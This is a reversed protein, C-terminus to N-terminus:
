KVNILMKTCVSPALWQWRRIEKCTPYKLQKFVNRKKWCVRSHFLFCLVNARLLMNWFNGSLGSSWRLLLLYHYCLHADKSLPALLKVSCLLQSSQHLRLSLLQPLGAWEQARVCSYRKSGAWNEGQGTREKSSSWLSMKIPGLIYIHVNKKYLFMKIRKGKIFYLSRPFDFIQSAFALIIVRQVHAQQHLLICTSNILNGSTTSM